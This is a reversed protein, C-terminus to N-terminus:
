PQIMGDRTYGDLLRPGARKVFDAYPQRASEPFTPSGAITLRTCESGGGNWRRMETDTLPSGTTPIGGIGDPATKAAGLADLSVLTDGRCDDVLDRGRLRVLTGCAFALDYRRTGVLTGDPTRHPDAGLQKCFADHAAPGAVFMEISTFTVDNPCFAFAMAIAVPPTNTVPSRFRWVGHMGSPENPNEITPPGSLHVGAKSQLGWLIEITCKNPDLGPAAYLEVTGIARTGDYSDLSMNVFTNKLWPMEPLDLPWSARTAGSLYRGERAEFIRTAPASEDVIPVGADIHAIATPAAVPTM